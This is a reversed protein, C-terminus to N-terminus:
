RREGRDGLGDLIRRWIEKWCCVHDYDAIEVISDAPIPGRATMRRPVQRDRGGVYHRQRIAPGLPARTAPNLSGALRTYGHLDAWADIDLNAAVTVVAVTEPFDPALLVALTGGGSYGLWVVREFGGERMIHRVAAAISSVVAESYRQATWLAPTCPPTEALGHYCPRGVYASPGVDLAMLDLVLPNRPTPDAAPRGHLWPVGDGDLYVHLTRAPAAAQLFVVHQFAGGRM